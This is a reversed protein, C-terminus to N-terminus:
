CGRRLVAAGTELDETRGRRQKLIGHGINLGRLGGVWDWSEKRSFDGMAGLVWLIM